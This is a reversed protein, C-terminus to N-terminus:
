RSISSTSDVFVPLCTPLGTQLPKRLCRHVCLPRRVEIDDDAGHHAVPLGVQGITLVRQPLLLLPLKLLSRLLSLLVLMVRWPALLLPPLRVVAFAITVLVAAGGKKFFVFRYCM